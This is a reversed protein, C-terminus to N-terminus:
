PSAPGTGQRGAQVASDGARGGTLLDRLEDAHEDHDGAPCREYAARWVRVAEDRDGAAELERGLSIRLPVAFRTAQAEDAVAVAERYTDAAAPHNGTASQLEGLTMLAVTLRAPERGGRLAAIAERAREQAEEHRGLGGLSHALNNMAMGASVPNGLGLHLGIARELADVAEEFRNVGNYASGLNLLSTAQEHRDGLREFVALARRSSAIQEDTHGTHNYGTGVGNRCKGELFANGATAASRCASEGLAVIERHHGRIYSHHWVLQFLAAAQEHLGHGDVDLVLRANTVRERDFWAIAEDRDAFDPAPVEGPEARPVPVRHPQSTLHARAREATRLHLRMLRAVAARTDSRRAAHDRAYQRLLDHLEYRGPARQRVLSAEVLRGLAATTTAPPLGALAAAAPRGIDDGPHLGLVDFLGAAERDLADYSWDFVSRLDTDTDDQASVSLATLRDRQDALEDRLSALSWEPHRAAQDAALRLALPLRACLETIATVADPEREAREVGVADAVLDLAEAPTLLDLTIHRAGERASLGRLKRRSTVIVLSGSGPLLPRVQASDRANDLVVLVRRAALESRWRAAREDVDRPLRDAAPHLSRLLAELADLPSVPSGPGYGRLDLHFQGDPFHHKVRHAWHVALTTKGVGPSGDIASIVIPRGTAAPDLVPGILRDLADTERERGVFGRIDTPLQRPVPAAGPPHEPGSPRAPGLPRAPETPGTLAADDALIAQHLEAVARGVDLGLEERVASSVARFAELAEARRGTRHLALMLRTWLSERLPHAATLGRLEAIVQADRGRALALDLARERATFWLEAVQAGVEARLAPSPVDELPAGRWLRAASRLLASEREEDGDEAARAALGVLERLRLLDLHEPGARLLYGGETTEILRTGLRRRLRSILTQVGNRVDQPSERPWAHHLLKWVPVVDNASFALSALVVRQRGRVEVPGAGTEVEFPGLVRIRVQEAM